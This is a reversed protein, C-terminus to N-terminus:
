KKDEVVEFDIDETDDDDDDFDEDDFDEDDFDFEFDYDEDDEFTDSYDGDPLMVDYNGIGVTRKLTAIIKNKDDYPGPIYLPKGESGFEYEIFEIADHDEELIYQTLAFDKNPKFGLDEAYGIAGFIYNHAEVYNAPKLDELASAHMNIYMECETADVNFRFGTDKLGLCFTDLLYSGIIFNGSPMKRVILVSVFGATFDMLCKDIPLQRCKTEIYKKPTLQVTQPKKTSKKKAM